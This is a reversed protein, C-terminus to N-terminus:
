GGDTNTTAHSLSGLHGGGRGGGRRRGMEPAETMRRSISVTPSSMASTPASAPV